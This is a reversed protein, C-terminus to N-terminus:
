ESIVRSFMVLYLIILCTVVEWAWNTIWVTKFDKVTESLLRRVSALLGIDWVFVHVGPPFGLLDSMDAKM